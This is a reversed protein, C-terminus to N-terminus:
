LAYIYAHFLRLSLYAISSSLSLSTYLSPFTCKGLMTAFERGYRPSMWVFNGGEVGQGVQKTVTSSTGHVRVSYFGGREKEGRIRRERKLRGETEGGKDGEREKQTYTYTRIRTHNDVPNEM